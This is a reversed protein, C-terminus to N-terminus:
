TINVDNNRWTGAPYTGKSGYQEKLEVRQYLYKVREAWAALITVSESLDRPTCISTCIVFHFLIVWLLGDFKFSMLYVM